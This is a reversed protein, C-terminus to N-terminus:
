RDPTLAGKWDEKDLAFSNEGDIGYRWGHFACRFQQSPGCRGDGDVLQRGRHLCVNHFARIRDRESRVVIISDNGIDYKIYDGVEPIEEIRCPHQWVKSWLLDGEAEAYERSIYAEVGFTVPESLMEKSVSSPDITMAEGRKGGPRDERRARPAALIFLLVRSY